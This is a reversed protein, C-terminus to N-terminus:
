HFQVLGRLARRQKLRRIAEDRVGPQMGDLIRLVEDQFDAKLTSDQWAEFIKLQTDLQKRIEASLGIIIRQTDRRNKGEQCNDGKIDCQARELEENIARNCRSLEAVMDLNQGVVEHARELQVTKAMNTRLEVKAQSIRGKTVGFHKAIESYPKKARLMQDLEHYNIRTMVM